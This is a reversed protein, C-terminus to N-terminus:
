AFHASRIASFAARVFTQEDDDYGCADGLLGVLAALAYGHACGVSAAAM